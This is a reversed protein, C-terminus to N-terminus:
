SPKSIERVAQFLRNWEDWQLAEARRTGDIGSHALANRWPLISRLMKRRHAFCTKLLNEWIKEGEPDDSFPVRPQDRRTLIIVESQVQPPPVFARPPVSILKKVDWHNQIWLSLSGQDKTSPVARIRQAVEAQFMLTMVPIQARFRALRNLIATGASYPLNSVVALPQAILWSSEPVELFDGSVIEIPLSSNKWREVLNRDKEVLVLPLKLRNLIPETIAGKGPGIELMAQCSHEMALQVATEAIQNTIQPDNLFHQGYARRRGQTAM